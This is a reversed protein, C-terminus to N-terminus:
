GILSEALTEIEDGTFTQAMVAYDGSAVAKSVEVLNMLPESVIRSILMGVILVLAIASVVFVIVQIQTVFTTYLLFSKALANGLVGVSLGGRVVLPSLVEGYAIENISFDRVISAMAGKALVEDVVGQALPLPELFSTAHINGLHDYITVQTLTSARMDQVINELDEGVLVVGILEGDSNKIPGSIYFTKRGGEELLGAFKDGQSDIKGEIINRAPLFTSYNGRESTIKYDEINESATKKVDLYEIGYSNLIKISYIGENVAIPYVIDRIRNIDKALMATKMQDVNAIYRVAELMSTENDVMWEHNIKGAELLQNNFRDEVTEFVIRTVIYAGFLGLALTLLLYPISIKLRLPIKLRRKRRSSKDETSSRYVTKGVLQKELKLRNYPSSIVEMNDPLIPSFQNNTQVLLSDTLIIKNIPAFSGLDAIGNNIISLDAIIFDFDRSDFQPLEGLSFVTQITDGRERSIKELQALNEDDPHLVLVNPRSM